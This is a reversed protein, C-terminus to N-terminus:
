QVNSSVIPLQQQQAENSYKENSQPFRKQPCLRRSSENNNSGGSNDLLHGREFTSSLQQVFLQRKQKHHQLDIM